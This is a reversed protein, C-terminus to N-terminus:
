IKARSKPRLDDNKIDFVRFYPERPEQLLFAGGEGVVDRGRARNGLKEKVEEIFPKSGVAFSETWKPDRELFSTPGLTEIWATRADQLERINRMGLLDMLAEWDVVQYRLRSQLQMLAHYGGFPWQAPHGVVGARVMNMDIYTLCKIFHEGNEVATAHYRDEWYAGSRGKRENYEQATRGAALHLSRAIVQEVRSSTDLLLLHVHNSTVTFNLVCLGFREVAAHVWYLWTRKDRGFKLLFKRHHCRHTIHWIYGPLYNRKARPM